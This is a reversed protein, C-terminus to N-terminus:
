HLIRFVMEKLLESETTSNNNIGKIRLDYERLLGIITRLRKFSYNRSAQAYDKLFYPHVSLTSALDKKSKNKLQHYMMLKTFFTFLVTIVVITPNQRPNAAFYKVIRNAKLIDRAGLANQLEFV